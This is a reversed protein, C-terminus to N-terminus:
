YPPRSSSGRARKVLKEIDARLGDMNEEPVRFETREEVVDEADGFLIPHDLEDVVSDMVAIM